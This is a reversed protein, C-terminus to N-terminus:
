AMEVARAGTVKDALRGTLEAYHDPAHMFGGAGQTASRLEVILDHLEAHPLCAEVADWGPWGSRADYGLIQGRRGTVIQTVRATADSPAFLTVRHVPELLVPHCQPLAEQAAIRGATRFALESSDVAHTSGDILTAGVDVVPFGLPGRALADKVGAEVAPFYTRPVVGGSIRESFAFGEGRALPRFEVVVDGFQGHGGTQRKHRGRQTLGKRITERYPTAPRSAVAGVGFKRELRSLAVALHTEGQGQFLFSGTEADPGFALGPDEELLKHMAASLKVEDKKERAALAVAYVPPAAEVAPASLRGAAAYVEGTRADGFRALAVIDGAEARDIKRTLAGQMALIGGVRAETGDARTLTAGDALAAGFVRAISLRGSQGAHLSKAVYVAPGAPAAGLLRGAARELAPTEHRLAKLLRRVGHGYLGSGLMVSAIQGNAAGAALDAFVEAQPPAVDSLLEEMLHDDFDALRELMQFRAEAERDAMDSPIAVQLSPQNPRYIFARELALDIFGTVKGDTWIPAQRLVLPTPSVEQLAELLDRVRGRATEIKNVFLLHPIHAESLRKLIPQLAAARAPDPECVVIALDVCPLASAMDAAFEVSGPCDLVAYPDDLYSFRAVNVETSMARTRAEPSSDGVTDANAVTGKRSIAGAAALMAELLTTKGSGHPGILAVAAATAHARGNM